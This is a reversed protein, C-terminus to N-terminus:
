KCVLFGLEWTGSSAGTKCKSGREELHVPPGRNKFGSSVTQNVVDPFSSHSQRQCQSASGLLAKKSCLQETAGGPLYWFEKKVTIAYCVDEDLGMKCPEAWVAAGVVRLRSQSNGPERRRLM